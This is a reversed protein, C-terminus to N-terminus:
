VAHPSQTQDLAAALAERVLQGIQETTVVSSASGRGIDATRHGATLVRNVAVEIASAEAELNGSYRLVM